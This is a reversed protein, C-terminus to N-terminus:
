DSSTNQGIRRKRTFFAIMFLLPAIFVSSCLGLTKIVNNDSIVFIAFGALFLLIGGYLLIRGVTM